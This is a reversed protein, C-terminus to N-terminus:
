SRQTIDFISIKQYFIKNCRSSGRLKRSMYGLKKNDFNVECIFNICDLNINITYAMRPDTALRLIRFRHTVLEIRLTRTEHNQTETYHTGLRLTKPALIGPWLTRHGLRAKINASSMPCHEAFFRTIDAKRKIFM